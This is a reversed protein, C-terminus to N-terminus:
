SKRYVMAGVVLLLGILLYQGSVGFLQFSSDDPYVKETGTQYGEGTGNNIQRNQVYQDAGSLQNAQVVLNQSLTNVWRELAEQQTDDATQFPLANNQQMSEIDNSSSEVDSGLTSSYNQVAKIDYDVSVM